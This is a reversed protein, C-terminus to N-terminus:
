HEAPSASLTFYFAAGQQPAGQAWVAGGHREVIRRVTALGIGTGEFEDRGHLREFPQFMKTVYNMDFGVGNDRVVFVDRGQACERGFYISADPRLATFKWANGLLNQLLLRLLATDGLATLGDEIQIAATRVPEEERLHEIFDRALATLDVQQAHIETRYILSLNLLGDILESMRLTARQIREIYMRGLDDLAGACDEQLASSIGNVVRLPARLDHSVAYSFAELERNAAELAATRERVRQELLAQSRWYVVEVARRQQERETADILTLIVGEVGGNEDKLPSLAWDWYTTGLEPREPFEFPKATISSSEGTMVVQRFLRESEEHPYLEFLNRGILSEVTLGTMAAYSSNVRLFNFEHDLVAILIHTNSFIAELEESKRRLVTERQKRETIDRDIGRYGAFNGKEDFFPVGNTELVVLSGGKRQNINELGQFPARRILASTFAQLVRAREEPPMFDFPTKGVVEEPAYGLLERVRPSAYTYHGTTDVEWVWDQTTEILARWRAESVKLSQFLGCPTMEDLKRSLQNEAM